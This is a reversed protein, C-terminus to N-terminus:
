SISKAYGSPSRSSTPATAEIERSRGETIEDVRCGCDILDVGQVGAVPVAVGGQLVVVVECGDADVAGVVGADAEGQSVHVVPEREVPLAGVVGAAVLLRVARVPVVDIVVVVVLSWNYLFLDERFFWNESVIKM